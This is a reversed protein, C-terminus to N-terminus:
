NKGNIFEQAEEFSIERIAAIIYYMLNEQGVVSIDSMIEKAAKKGLALAVFDFDKDESEVNGTLVDGMKKWTSQRDDVVYCKDGIKLEPHNDGTLIKNETDIIRKAM